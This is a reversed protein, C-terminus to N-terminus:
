RPRVLYWGWLAILLVPLLGGLFGGIIEGSQTQLMRGLRPGLQGGLIWGVAGGLLSCMLGLIPTSFLLAINRTLVVRGLGIAFLGGVSGVATGVMAGVNIEGFSPNRNM